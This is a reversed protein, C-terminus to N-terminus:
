VCYCHLGVGLKAQRLIPPASYKYRVQQQYRADVFVHLEISVGGERARSTSGARLLAVRMEDGDDVVRCEDKRGCSVPYM